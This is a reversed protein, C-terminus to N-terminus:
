HPKGGRFRGQLLGGESKGKEEIRRGEARGLENLEGSGKGGTRKLEKGYLSRGARV